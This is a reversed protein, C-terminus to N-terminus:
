LIEINVKKNLSFAHINILTVDGAYLYEFTFISIGYSNM